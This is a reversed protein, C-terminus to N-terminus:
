LYKADENVFLIGSFLNKINYFWVFEVLNSIWDKADEDIFEMMMRPLKPKPPGVKPM